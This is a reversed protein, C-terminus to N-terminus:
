KKSIKKKRWVSVRHMRGRLTKRSKKANEMGKTAETVNPTSITSWKEDFYDM